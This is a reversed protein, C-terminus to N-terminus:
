GTFDFINLQPIDEQTAAGSALVKDCKAVAAIISRGKHLCEFKYAKIDAADSTRYFGRVSSSRILVLNDGNDFVSLRQLYNRAVRKTVGWMACLEGYAIANERGIPLTDWLYALKSENM